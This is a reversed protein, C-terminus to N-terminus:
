LAGCMEHFGMLFLSKLIISYVFIVISRKSLIFYISKHTSGSDVLIIFKYDKIYGVLKLTQPTSFRTLCNLLILPEFKSPDYPPTLHYEQPLMEHFWLMNM